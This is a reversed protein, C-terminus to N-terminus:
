GKQVSKLWNKFSAHADLKELVFNIIGWPLHYLICLTICRQNKRFRGIILHYENVPLSPVFIAEWSGVYVNETGSGLSRRRPLGGCIHM